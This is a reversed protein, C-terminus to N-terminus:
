CTYVPQPSGNRRPVYIPRGDHKAFRILGGDRARLFVPGWRRRQGPALTVPYESEAAATVDEATFLQGRRRSAFITLFAEAALSFMNDSSAM